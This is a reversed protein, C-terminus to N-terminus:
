KTTRCINTGDLYYKASTDGGPIAPDIGIKYSGHYRKKAEQWAMLSWACAVWYHTRDENPFADPEDFTDIFWEKFEDTLSAAHRKEFWSNEKWDM